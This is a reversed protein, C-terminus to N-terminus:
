LIENDAFLPTTGKFAIWLKECQQQRLGSLCDNQYSKRHHEAQIEGGCEFTLRESLNRYFFFTNKKWLMHSHHGAIIVRKKLVSLKSWLSVVGFADAPPTVSCKVTQGILYTYVSSVQCSFTFASGLAAASVSITNLDKHSPFICSVSVCVCDWLLARNM